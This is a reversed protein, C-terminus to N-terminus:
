RVFKFTREHGEFVVRALYIGRSLNGIAISQRAAGLSASLVQQGSVSYIKVSKMEASSELHLQDGTAFHSFAIEGAELVGLVPNNVTTVNDAYGVAKGTTFFGYGTIQSVNLDGTYVLAGDVYFLTKGNVFDFQFTLHYFTDAAVPVEAGVSFDSLEIILVKDQLLAISAGPLGETGAAGYINFDIEGEGSETSSIYMDASIEYTDLDNPIESSIDRSPGTTSGGPIFGQEDIGVM